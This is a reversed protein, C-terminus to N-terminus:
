FKEVATNFFLIFDLFFTGPLKTEAKPDQSFLKKHTKQAM